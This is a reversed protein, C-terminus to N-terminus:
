ATKRTPTTPIGYRDAHIQRGLDRAEGHRGKKILDRYKQLRPDVPKAPAPKKVEPQLKAKTREVPAPKPKAAVPAAPKPAPKAAPTAPVDPGAKGFRSPTQNMAQGWKAQIATERNARAREAAPGSQPTSGQLDTLASVVASILSGGGRATPASPRPTNLRVRARIGADAPPRIKEYATPPTAPGIKPRAKDPGFQPVPAQGLQRSTPVSRSGLMGQTTQNPTPIPRAPPLARTPLRSSPPKPLGQQPQPKKPFQNWPDRIPKAMEPKKVKQRPTTVREGAPKKQPLFGLMKALGGLFVQTPDFGQEVMIVMARTADEPSLGEEEILYSYVRDFNDM